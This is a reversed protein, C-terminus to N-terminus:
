SVRTKRRWEGNRVEQRSGSLSLSSFVSSCDSLYGKKLFNKKELLYINRRKEQEERKRSFFPNETVNTNRHLTAAMKCSTVRTFIILCTTIDESRCNYFM